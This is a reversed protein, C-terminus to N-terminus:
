NLKYYGAILEINERLTKSSSFMISGMIVAAYKSPDGWTHGVISDELYVILERIILCFICVLGIHLFTILHKKIKDDKDIKDSIKKIIKDLTRSVLLGTYTLLIGYIFVELIYTTQKKYGIKLM